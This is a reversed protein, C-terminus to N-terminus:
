NGRFERWKVVYRVILKAQSDRSSNRAHVISFQDITARWSVWRFHLRQECPLGPWPIQAFFLDRM